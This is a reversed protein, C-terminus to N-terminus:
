REGMGQLGGEGLPKPPRLSKEGGLPPLCLLRERGGSAPALPQAGSPAASSPPVHSLTLPGWGRVRPFVGLKRPQSM